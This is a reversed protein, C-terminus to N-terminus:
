STHLLVTVIVFLLVVAGIGIPIWRWWGDGLSLSPLGPYRRRAGIYFGVVLAAELYILVTYSRSLFFAAAFMGCLSLFLTMAMRKELAWEAAQEADGEVLAPKYRLVAVMMMFGYCVFALWLTFGVIGTEALVLVFSNHATLYNYDTFNGAGVGFVPHSTFMHLGEYWADVRGNASEEDADLESMRSSLMKMVILGVVSLTGATVMGRRYWVYIGGIALVALLAGRSNTLYVGYLLLAAGGLWFLRRLFGGGASLFITMPLATVFLLGLDNPDAFIGVYEIRGEIMGAGTWGVGHQKQDIGHVALVMSCLAIVAFTVPVRKRDAAVAASLVFFIIVVPGFQALQELAGGAWHNFVESVMLVALFVPLILYQPAAFTKANSAIYALTALGLTASLLPVGALAAMYDQPRIITLILYLLSLLFM